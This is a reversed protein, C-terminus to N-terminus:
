EDRELVGWVTECLLDDVQISPHVFLRLIKSELKRKLGTLGMQDIQVVRFGNRAGRERIFRKAESAAFFWKHRDEPPDTPLFYYKLPQEPRYCGDRLNRLFSSWPNPLSIVVYRRSVRCLEDFLRHLSDVHELVDLCLVCDFSRTELPLPEELDVKVDHDLELGATRYVVGSPLYQKLGGRDAGVDLIEGELIPQYKLWVYRSKEERNTFVLSTEFQM